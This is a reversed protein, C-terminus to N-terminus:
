EESSYNNEESYLEGLHGMTTSPLKTGDPNTGFSIETNDNFTAHDKVFTASAVGGLLFAGVGVLAPIIVNKHKNWWDKAKNSNEITDEETNENM